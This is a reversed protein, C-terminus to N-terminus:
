QTPEYPEVYYFPMRIGEVDGVLNIALQHLRKLQEVDDPAAYCAVRMLPREDYGYEYYDEYHKKIIEHLKVLNYGRFIEMELPLQLVKQCVSELVRLERMTNVVPRGNRAVYVSFLVGAFWQHNDTLIDFRTDVDINQDHFAGRIPECLMSNLRDRIENRFRWEDYDTILPFHVEFKKPVPFFSPGDNDGTNSEMIDEDLEMLADDFTRSKTVHLDYGIEGLWCSIVQPKQDFATLLQRLVELREDHNLKKYNGGHHFKIVVAFKGNELYPATEFEKERIVNDIRSHEM